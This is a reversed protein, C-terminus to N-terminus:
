AATHFFSGRRLVVVGALMLALLLLGAFSLTPVILPEFGRGFWGLDNGTGGQNTQDPALPEGTAHVDSIGVFEIAQGGGSELFMQAIQPPLSSRIQVPVGNVGLITLLTSVRQISGSQLVFEGGANSTLALEYFTSDGVMNASSASQDDLHVRGSGALFNGANVWDGLATLSGTGGSLMGNIIVNGADVVDGSGVDFTGNVTLDTEALALRGDGLSISGGNGVTIAAHISPSGGAFFLACGILVLLRVM